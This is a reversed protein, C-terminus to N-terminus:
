TTVMRFRMRLRPQTSTQENYHYCVTLKGELRFYPGRLLGLDSVKGTVGIVQNQYKSPNSLLEDTSMIGHVIKLRRIEPAEEIEKVEETLLDVTVKVVKVGFEEDYDKIIRFRVLALGEKPILAIGQETKQTDYLECVGHSYYNVGELM